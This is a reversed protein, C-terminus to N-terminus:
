LPKLLEIKNRVRNEAVFRSFHTLVICYVVGIESIKKKNKQQKRPEKLTSAGPERAKM